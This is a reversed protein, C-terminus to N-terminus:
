LITTIQAKLINKNAQDFKNQLYILYLLLRKSIAIVCQIQFVFYIKFVLLFLERVQHFLPSHTIPIGLGSFCMGLVMDDPADMSYCRCKSALLKQVAKRSFVMRLLFLLHFM